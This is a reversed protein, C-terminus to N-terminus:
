AHEPTCTGAPPLGLAAMLARRATRRARRAHVCVPDREAAAPFPDAPRVGVATLFRRGDASASLAADLADLTQM